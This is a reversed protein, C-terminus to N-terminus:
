KLIVGWMFILVGTIICHRAISSTEPINPLKRKTICHNLRKRIRDIIGFMIM